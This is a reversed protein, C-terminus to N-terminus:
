NCLSSTVYKVSWLATAIEMYTHIRPLSDPMTVPFNLRHSHTDVQLLLVANWRRINVTCWYVIIVCGHDFIVLIKCIFNLHVIVCPLLLLHTTTSHLMLTFTPSSKFSTRDYCFRLVSLEYRNRSHLELFLDWNYEWCWTPTCSRSIYLLKIIKEM